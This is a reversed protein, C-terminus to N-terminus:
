FSISCAAQRAAEEALPWDLSSGSRQWGFAKCTLAVNLLGRSAGVFSFIQTVLGADFRSLDVVRSPVVVPLVDHHGELLHLRQRLRAVEAVEAVEADSRLLQQRLRANESRLARIESELDDIRADRPGEWSAGSANNLMTNSQDDSM